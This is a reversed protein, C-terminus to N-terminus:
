ARWHQLCTLKARPTYAELLFHVKGEKKAERSEAVTSWVKLCWAAVLADRVDTKLTETINLQQLGGRVLEEHAITQGDSNTWVNKGSMLGAKGNFLLSPKDIFLPDSTCNTGQNLLVTYDPKGVKKKQIELVINGLGEKSSTAYYAPKDKQYAANPPHVLYFVLEDHASGSASGQPKEPTHTKIRSLHISSSQQQVATLSRSIAYVRKGDSSIHDDNIIFSAPQAEADYSPPAGAISEYDPPLSKTDDM